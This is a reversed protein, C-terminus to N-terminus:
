WATRPRWTARISRRASAACTPPSAVTVFPLNGIRRAVLSQDLLEGGRIVCDVNDGILDVPRDSV